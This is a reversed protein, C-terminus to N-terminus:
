KASAPFCTGAKIDLLVKGKEDYATAPGCLKGGPMIDMREMNPGFTIEMHRIGHLLAWTPLVLDKGIAPGALSLAVAGAVIHKMM